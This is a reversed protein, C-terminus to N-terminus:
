LVINGFTKRVVFPLFTGRAGLCKMSDDRISQHPTQSWGAGVHQLQLVKLFGAVLDELLGLPKPSVRSLGVSGEVCWLTAM